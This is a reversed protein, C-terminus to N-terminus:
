VARGRPRETQAAVVALGVGDGPDRLTLNVARQDSGPLVQSQKDRLGPAGGRSLDEGLGESGQSRPRSTVECDGFRRVIEKTKLFYQDTFVPVDEPRILTEQGNRHGDKRPTRVADDAGM